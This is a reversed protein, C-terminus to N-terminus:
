LSDAANTADAANNREIVLTNFENYFTEALQVVRLEYIFEPAQLAAIVNPFDLKRLPKHAEGITLLVQLAVIHNLLSDTLSDITPTPM